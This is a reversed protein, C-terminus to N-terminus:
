ARGDGPPPPTLSPPEVRVTAYGALFWLLSALAYHGGNLWNGLNVTLVGLIALVLVDGTAVYGSLARWLTLLVIAAFLLGGVLGLSVFADALDNDTEIGKGGERQEGAITAAATGHGAPNRFGEAVGNGLSAWHSLATSTDEDLPNLIGGVNREVIADGYLGAARDIRPGFAQAVLLTGAVGVICVVAGLVITRMRVASLLVLALLALVMSSRGGAFFTAIALFPAALAFVIRGHLFFAGAIALAAGVYAGYETNSSFTSWPRIVNDGRDGVFLAAYGTVQLWKFDWSPLSGVETQWLGYVGAVLAVVVSAGTVAAVTRRDGLERGVLFWVLPVALFILATVNAAIGNDSVPNFVQLIVVALLATVLKVLLDGRLRPHPGALVHVLLFAAVAPGVLILPDNSTWASDFILLRRALALFPLFLLTLVAAARPWRIGVVLLNGVLAAALLTRRLEPFEITAWGALAAAAALALGGALAAVSPLGSTPRWHLVDARIQAGNM